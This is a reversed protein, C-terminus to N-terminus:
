STGLDTNNREVTSSVPMSSRPQMWTGITTLLYAGEAKDLDRGLRIERGAYRLVVAPRGTELCMFKWPPLGLTGPRPIVHEGDLDAFRYTRRIVLPGISRRISFSLFDIILTERGLTVWAIRSFLLGELAVLGALSLPEWASSSRESWMRQGLAILGFATLFTVALLAITSALRVRARITIHLPAPTEGESTGRTVTIRQM